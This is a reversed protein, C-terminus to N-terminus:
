QSKLRLAEVVKRFAPSPDRRNPYYLHYGPFYPCWEDLVQMLSGNAIHPGLMDAPLYGIGNGQLAAKLILSSTNFVLQGPVKVNIERGDKEFEWTYLGGFSPLRFNICNHQMLDEPEQPVGHEAFYEPSSFVLMRVPPMLPVAIMDQDLHEGLRVGADLRQGVIDTLGNDIRLEINIDPYDKMLQSLRPWITFEAAHDSCAIRVTGAPKDRLETLAALEADIDEFLPAVTQLLRDGAETPSVSRTTRTLLRIGLRSELARITHSLASQSVGMQAAARTFSRERAVAIFAQLEHYNDRAM